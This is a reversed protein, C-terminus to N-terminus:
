WMLFCVPFRIYEQKQKAMLKQIHWNKGMGTMFLEEPIKQALIAQRANYSNNLLDQENNKVYQCLYGIMACFIGCFVISLVIIERNRNRKRKRYTTKKEKNKKRSMKM